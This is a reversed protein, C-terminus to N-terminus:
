HPLERHMLELGVGTARDRAQVQRELLRARANVRQTGSAKPLSRAFKPDDVSRRRKLDLLTAQQGVNPRGPTNLAGRRGVGQIPRSQQATRLAQGYRHQGAHTERGQTEGHLGGRPRMALVTGGM